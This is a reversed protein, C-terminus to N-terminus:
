KGLSRVNDTPQLIMLLICLFAAAYFTSVLGIEEAMFGTVVPGVFQGMSILFFTAGFGASPRDRYILMSWIGFVATISIFTAGFLSASFYALFKWSLAFPLLVIALAIAALMAWYVSRIGFRNVTDGAFCGFIGSIGILTWFLITWSESYDQSSVLLDVAFTWYVSTVIGFSLAALYLFSASRRLFFVSNLKPLKEAGHVFAGTPLTFYNWVSSVLAVAAFILWALRWDSGTWLAIPGALIVGFGTGSNIWAYARERKKVQVVRIIADSLPPYSFGPSTGALFVGLVLMFVSSSMAITLMGLAALVGGLVVPARPGLRASVTMGILTALLYGLYSGSAILGMLETSLEMERQIQPLFLGYAYRALGYTSAVIAIGAPVWHQSRLLNM